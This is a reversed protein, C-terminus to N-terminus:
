GQLMGWPHGSLMVLSDKVKAGHALCILARLAMGLDSASSKITTAVPGSWSPTKLPAYEM